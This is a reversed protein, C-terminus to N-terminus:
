YRNRRNSRQGVPFGNDRFSCRKGFSIVFDFELKRYLVIRVCFAGNRPTYIDVFFRGNESNVINSVASKYRFFIAINLRYFIGAAVYGTATVAKASLPTIYFSFTCFREFVSGVAACIPMGNGIRWVSAGNRLYCRFGRPRCIDIYSFCFIITNFEACGISRSQLRFRGIIRADFEIETHRCDSRKFRFDISSRGIRINRTFVDILRHLSFRKRYFCTNGIIKREADAIHSNLCIYGRSNLM